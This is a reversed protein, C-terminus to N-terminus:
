VSEFLLVRAMLWLTLNQSRARRVNDAQGSLHERLWAGTVSAAKPTSVFCESLHLGPFM